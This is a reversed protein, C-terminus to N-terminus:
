HQAGRWNRCAQSLTPSKDMTNLGWPLQSRLRQIWDHQVINWLDQALKTRPHEYIFDLIFIKMNKSGQHDALNFHRGIDKEVTAKQVDEFHEQFRQQLTNLTQGVYQKHCITCQICYILNSSKCTMKQKCKYTCKTRTSIITGSTDLLPCYRCKRTCANVTESIM